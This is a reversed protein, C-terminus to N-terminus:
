AIIRLSAEFMAKTAEIAALNADYARSAMM